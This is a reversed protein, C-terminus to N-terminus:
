MVNGHRLYKFYDTRYKVANHVHKLTGVSLIDLSLISMYFYISGKDV